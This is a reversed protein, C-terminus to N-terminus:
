LAGVVLADVVDNNRAFVAFHGEGEVADVIGGDLAEGHLGLGIEEGLGEAEFDADFQILSLLM